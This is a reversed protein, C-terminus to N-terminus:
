FPAFIDSRGTPQSPVVTGGSIVPANTIDEFKVKDLIAQEADTLKEIPAEVPPLESPLPKWYANLTMQVHIVSSGGTGGAVISLDQISVVRPLSIVAQMFSLFGRYDGTFSVKLQVLPTNITDGSLGGAAPVPTPASAATGSQAATTEGISGPAVDIKNLIVGSGSAERELQQVISFVGKDSPLLQESRSLQRDLQNKDLTKLSGAKSQLSRVRETLLGNSVTISIVKNITPWVVLVLVILSIGLAVVPTVLKLIKSTEEGSGIKPFAPLSIAPLSFM